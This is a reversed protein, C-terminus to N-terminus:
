HGSRVQPHPEASPAVGGVMTCVCHGSTCLDGTKQSMKYLLLVLPQFYPAPSAMSAPWVGKEKLIMAM